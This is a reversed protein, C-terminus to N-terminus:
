NDDMFIREYIDMSQNNDVLCSVDFLIDKIGAKIMFFKIGFVYFLKNESLFKLLVLTKSIVEKSKNEKLLSIVKLVIETRLFISKLLSEDVNSDSFILILANLIHIKKTNSLLRCTLSEISAKLINSKILLSPNKHLYLSISLDVCNIFLKSNIKKYSQSTDNSLISEKVENFINLISNFLDPYDKDLNNYEDNYHYLINNLTILSTNTIEKSKNLVIKRILIHIIEYILGTNRIYEYTYKLVLPSQTSENEDIQSSFIEYLFSTSMHILFQNNTDINEISASSLLLNVFSSLEFNYIKMENQYYTKVINILFFM